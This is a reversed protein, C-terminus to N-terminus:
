CNPLFQTEIVEDSLTTIPGPTTKYYINIRRLAADVLNNVMPNLGGVIIKVLDPEFPTPPAQQSAVFGDATEILMELPQKDNRIHATIRYETGPTFASSSVVGLGWSFKTDLIALQAKGNDIFHILDFSQM